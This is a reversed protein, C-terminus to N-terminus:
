VQYQKDKKIKELVARLIYKRMTICQFAAQYKIERHIDPPIDISLRKNSPIRRSQNM